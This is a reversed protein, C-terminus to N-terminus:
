QAYTFTASDKVYSPLTADTVEIVIVIFERTDGDADTGFNFFLIGAGNDESNREQAYGALIVTSNVKCQFRQMFSRSSVDPAVIKSDNSEFENMENLVSYTMQYELNVTDDPQIHPTILLSTGTVVQGPELSTESQDNNMTTSVKALYGTRRLAQLPMPQNNQTLGSMTDVLSARKVGMMANVDLSSGKWNGHFPDVGGLNRGVGPLVVANFNGGGFTLSTYGDNFLGQIGAGVNWSSGATVNYVKINFSLQRSLKKQMEAMYADIRRLVLPSETVSVTGAGKSVVVSGDKTIMAEINDLFEDWAKYEAETQITQETEGTAGGGTGSMNSGVNDESDTKNTIETDIKLDALHIPMSYTKTQLYYFVVTNTDKQYEWNINYYGAIKDLLETLSGSHRVNMSTNIIDKRKSLDPSYRVIIGTAQAIRDGINALYANNERLTIKRGKLYGQGGSLSASFTDIYPAKVESFPELTSKAEERKQLLDKAKTEVQTISERMACGPLAMAAIILFAAIKKPFKM